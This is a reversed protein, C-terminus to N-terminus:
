GGGLRMLPHPSAPQAAFPYSTVGAVFAALAAPDTGSSNITYDGRNNNPSSIVQEWNNMFCINPWGAIMEFLLDYWGAKSGCVAALRPDEACGVEAIGFPKSSFGTLTAYNAGFLTAPTQCYTNQTSMYGDLAIYDVYSDGPYWDVGSTDAVTPDVINAGVGPTDWINPCWCWSVNTAGNTRFLSVVHQWGAVFQAATEHTNGYANWDGNFEHCLRIIMPLGYNKCAVALGYLGANNYLGSTDYTGSGMSSLTISPAATCHMMAGLDAAWTPYASYFIPSVVPNELFLLTDLARGPALLANTAQFDALEATPQGCAGLMIPLTRM